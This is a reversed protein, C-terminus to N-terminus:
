TMKTLGMYMRMGASSVSLAPWTLPVNSGTAQAEEPASTGGEEMGSMNPLRDASSETQSNAPIETRSDALVDEGSSDTGGTGCAVLNLSLVGTLLLAIMRKM